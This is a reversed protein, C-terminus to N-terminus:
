HRVSRCDSRHLKSFKHRSVVEEAIRAHTTGKCDMNSRLRRQVRQSTYARECKYGHASTCKACLFSSVARTACYYRNKSFNGGEFITLAMRTLEPVPGSGFGKGRDQGYSSNVPKSFGTALM